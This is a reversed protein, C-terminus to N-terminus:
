VVAILYDIIHCVFDIEPCSIYVSGSSLSQKLATWVEFGPVGALMGTESIIGFARVSLAVVALADIPM